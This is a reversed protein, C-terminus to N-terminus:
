EKKENKVRELYDQWEEETMTAINKRVEKPLRDHLPKITEEALDKTKNMREGTISRPKM